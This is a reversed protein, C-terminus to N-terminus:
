QEFETLKDNYQNFWLVLSFWMYKRTRYYVSWFQLLGRSNGTRLSIMWQILYPVVCVVDVFPNLEWEFTAMGAYVVCYCLLDCLRMGAIRLAINGWHSLLSIGLIVRPPTVAFWKQSLVHFVSGLKISNSGRLCCIGWCRRSFQASSLGTRAKTLSPKRIWNYSRHIIM